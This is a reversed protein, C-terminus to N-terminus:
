ENGPMRGSGAQSRGRVLVMVLLGALTLGTGLLVVDLALGAMLVSSFVIGIVPLVPVGKVDFPARFPRPLEPSKQRLVILAVCVSFFGAFITFSTVGAIVGVLAYIGAGLIVGVGGLTTEWLGLSKRLGPGTASM